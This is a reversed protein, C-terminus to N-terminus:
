EDWLPIVSGKGYSAGGTLGIGFGFGKWLVNGTKPRLGIYANGGLGWGGSISRVPGILTSKDIDLPNGTYNAFNVNIGWDIEPGFRKQETRTFYIGPEGRTIINMTYTMSAGGLIPSAGINIDFSINDPVDGFIARSHWAMKIADGVNIDSRDSSTQEEREHPISSINIPPMKPSLMNMNVNNPAPSQEFWIPSFEPHYMTQHSQSPHTEPTVTIEDITYEQTVDGGGAALGMFDIYNVPNNNAYAYPSIGTYLDAFPEPVHWRGLAADYM